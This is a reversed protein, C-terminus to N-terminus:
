KTENPHATAVRTLYVIRKKDDVCFWLRAGHSLDRFQWQDFEEGLIKVTGLSGKLPYNRLPHRLTPHQALYDWAGALKNNQTAKLDNWGKVVDNSAAVIQYETSKVPRQLLRNKTM